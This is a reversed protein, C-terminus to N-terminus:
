CVLQPDCEIYDDAVLRGNKEIESGGNFNFHCKFTNQFSQVFNFIELTSLSFLYICILFGNM